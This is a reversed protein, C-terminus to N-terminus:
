PLSGHMDRLIADGQDAAHHWVHHFFERWALEFVLKDEFDLPHRTHIALAAAPLSLLGHTFYPSLGTVAGDLANRTRAYDTPNVGQLRALAATQSPEFLQLHGPIGWGATTSPLTM